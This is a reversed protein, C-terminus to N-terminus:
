ELLFRLFARAVSVGDQEREVRSVADGFTADDFVGLAHRLELIERVVSATFEPHGQVTIVRQPIYFGQVPCRETSALLTTKAPLSVVEDRHM